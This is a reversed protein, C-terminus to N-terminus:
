EARNRGNRANWIAGARFSFEPIVFFIGFPPMQAIITDADMDKPARKDPPGGFAVDSLLPPLQGMPSILPFM